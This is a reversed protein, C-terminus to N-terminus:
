DRHQIEFVESPWDGRALPALETSQVRSNLETFAVLRESPTLAKYPSSKATGTEVM